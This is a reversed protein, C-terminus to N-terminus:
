IEVLSSCPSKLRENREFTSESDKWQPQVNSSLPPLTNWEKISKEEKAKEKEYYSGLISRCSM